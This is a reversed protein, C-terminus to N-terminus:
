SLLFYISNTGRTLLDILPLAVLHCGIQHIVKDVVEARSGVTPLTSFVVVHGFHAGGLEAARERASALDAAVRLNQLSSPSFASSHNEFSKFLRSTEEDFTNKVVLSAYEGQLFQVQAASIAYLTSLDEESINFFQDEQNQRSSSSIVAIQRLTTEAFRASKSLIRLASRSEQKIGAASDQVKLHPPLNVKSLREKIGDFERLVDDARRSASTETVHNEVGGTPGGNQESQDLGSFAAGASSQHNSNNAVNEEQNIKLEICELRKQISELVSKLESDM